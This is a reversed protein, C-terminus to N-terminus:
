HAVDHVEAIYGGPFQIVASNGASSKHLPSLIVAGSSSARTLTAQLNDVAYGTTERGFPYPLKGDTVFVALNGFDTALRVKRFSYGPRGIEAGDARENDSVIKGNSFKLFSSLFHEVTHTSLYIRNDPVTRLPAYSPARTHWYLQMKVGGPWEILADKGIPDDFPEVTVDAGAALAKNVAVNINRVLYGSRENGFPYPIPTQFAFVSLM